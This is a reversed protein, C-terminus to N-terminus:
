DASCFSCSFDHTQFLPVGCLIAKGPLSDVRVVGDVPDESSGKLHPYDAPQHGQFILYLGCDISTMYKTLGRGMTGLFSRLHDPRMM